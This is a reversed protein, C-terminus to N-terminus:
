KGGYKELMYEPRMWLPDGELNDRDELPICTDIFLLEIPEVFNIHIPNYDAIERTISVVCEIFHRANKSLKRIALIDQTVKLLRGIDENKVYRKYLRDFLLFNDEESFKRTLKKLEIFINYLTYSDLKTDITYSAKEIGIIM